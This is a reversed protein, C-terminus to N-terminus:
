RRVEQHFAPAAILQLPLRRQLDANYATGSTLSTIAITANAASSGASQFQFYTGPSKIFGTVYTRSTGYSFTQFQQVAFGSQVTTNAVIPSNIEIAGSATTFTPTFALSVYAYILKGVQYYYGTQTTYSVSLDGVTAATVTPTYATLATYDSLDTTAPRACGPVGSTSIVDVWQHAACTLSEVGGIVSASAPNLAITGAGTITGGSLGTGATISTVTGSTPAGCDAAQQPNTGSACFVHGSGVSAPANIPTPVQGALAPAVLVLWATACAVFRSRMM